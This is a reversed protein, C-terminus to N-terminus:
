SGFDRGGYWGPRGGAADLHSRRSAREDAATGEQHQRLVDRKLLMDIFGITLANNHAAVAMGQVRLGHRLFHDTRITWWNSTRRWAM